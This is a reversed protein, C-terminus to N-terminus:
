LMRRTQDKQKTIFVTSKGSHKNVELADFIINVYSSLLELLLELFNYTNFFNFRDENWIVRM